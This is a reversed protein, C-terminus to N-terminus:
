LHFNWFSVHPCVLWTHIWFWIGSQFIRHMMWGLVERCARGELFSRIMVDWWSTKSAKEIKDNGFFELACRQMWGSSCVNRKFVSGCGRFWHGGRTWIRLLSVSKWVQLQEFVVLLVELWTEGLWWIWGQSNLNQFLQWFSFTNSLKEPSWDPVRDTFHFSNMVWQLPSTAEILSNHSISLLTGAEYCSSLPHKSHNNIKILTFNM